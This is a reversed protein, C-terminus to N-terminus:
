GKWKYDEPEEFDSHNQCTLVGNVMEHLQFDGCVPCYLVWVAVETLRTMFDGVKSRSKIVFSKLAGKTSKRM